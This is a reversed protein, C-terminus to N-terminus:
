TMPKTCCSTSWPWPAFVSKAARSSRRTHPGQLSEAQLHLLNAIVQLNDKVRQHLAKFLREAQSLAAQLAANAQALEATREQVRQELAKHTQQWETIDRLLWRLGIVQGQADRAPAVRVVAPFAPKHRPQVRVEWERVEAGNQLWVLHAQFPQRTERAIFIALPKGTLRHPAINLLASVARNAEQIHGYPDTVLYGDPAFEFLEQYRLQERLAAQRTQTLAENVAQLEALAMSLQEVAETLSPPLSAVGRWRLTLAVVQQRLSEIEDTYDCPHTLPARPRRRM